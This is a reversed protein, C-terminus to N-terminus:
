YGQILIEMNDFNLAALDTKKIWFFLHGSDNWQMLAEKESDLQFLLMWEEDEARMEGQIENAYGFIKTRHEDYANRIDMYALMFAGAGYACDEAESKYQDIYKYNWLPLSYAEEFEMKCSPYTKYKREEKSDNKRRSLKSNTNYIVKFCFPQSTHRWCESKKSAFFFSVLGEKPLHEAVSKYKNIEQFNIQAIFVLEDTKSTTPWEMEDPLDPLGGVKSTGVKISSDKVKTLNIRLEPLMHPEFYKWVTNMGESSLAKRYDKKTILNFSKEIYNVNLCPNDPDSNDVSWQKLPTCASIFILAILLINKHMLKSKM